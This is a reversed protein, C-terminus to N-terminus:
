RLQEPTNKQCLDGEPTYLAHWRAPYAVAQPFSLKYSFGVDFLKRLVATRFFSPTTFRLWPSFSNVFSKVLQNSLMPVM